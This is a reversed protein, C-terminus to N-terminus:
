SSKRPPQPSAQPRAPSTTSPTPPRAPRTSSSNSVLTGNLFTKIGLNLDAQPSTITAGLDAYSDGTRIVAPNDGSFAISPPTTSAAGNQTV